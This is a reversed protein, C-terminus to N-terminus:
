DEIECESNGKQIALAAQADTLHHSEKAVIEEKPVSFFFFVYFQRM